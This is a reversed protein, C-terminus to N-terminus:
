YGVCKLVWRVVTNDQISPDVARTELLLKAVDWHKHLVAYLLPTNGFAATSDVVDQFFTHRAMPDTTRKGAEKDVEALLLKTLTMSGLLATTHLSTFYVFRIYRNDSFAQLMTAFNPSLLLKLVLDLLEEPEHARKYHDFWYRGAYPAISLLLWLHWFMLPMPEKHSGSPPHTGRTFNTDNM